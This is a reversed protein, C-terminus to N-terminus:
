RKIHLGALGARQAQAFAQAQMSGLGAYLLLVVRQVDSMPADVLLRAALPPHLSPNVDGAIKVAEQEDAAEILMRVRLGQPATDYVIFPEPMLKM